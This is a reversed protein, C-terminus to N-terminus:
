LTKLAPTTLQLTLQLSHSMLQGSFCFLEEEFLAHHLISSVHGLLLQLDARVIVLRLTYQIIDIETERVMKRSPLVSARISLLLTSFAM